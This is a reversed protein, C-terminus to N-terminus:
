ELQSVYVQIINKKGDIIITTAYVLSVAEEITQARRRRSPM